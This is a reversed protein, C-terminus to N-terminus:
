LEMVYGFWSVQIDDNLTCGFLMGRVVDGEILTLQGSWEASQAAPVALKVTAWYNTAGDYVGLRIFTVASNYNHCELATVVWIVGAPVAGSDLVNTGAACDEVRTQGLLQSTYGFLQACARPLGAANIGVPTVLQGNPAPM